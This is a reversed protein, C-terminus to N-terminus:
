GQRLRGFTGKAAQVEQEEVKRKRGQGKALQFGQHHRPLRCCGKAVRCRGQDKPYVRHFFFHGIPMGPDTRNPSRSRSRPIPSCICRSCFRRRIAKPEPQDQRAMEELDQYPRVNSWRPVHKRFCGTRITPYWWWRCPPYPCCSTWNGLVRCLNPSRGERLRRLGTAQEQGHVRTTLKTGPGHDAIRRNEQGQM